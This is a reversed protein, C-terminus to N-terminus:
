AAVAVIIWAILVGIAIFGLWFSRFMKVLVRVILLPHDKHKEYFSPSAEKQLRERERRDKEANAYEIERRKKFSLLTNCNTCYEKNINYVGCNPCKIHSAM